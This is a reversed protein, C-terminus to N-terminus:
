ETLKHNDRNEIKDITVNSNTGVYNVHIARFKKCFTLRLEKIKYSM